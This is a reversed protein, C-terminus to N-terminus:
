GREFAFFDRVRRLPHRYFNMPPLLLLAVARVPLLVLWLIGWLFLPLYDKMKFLFDSM